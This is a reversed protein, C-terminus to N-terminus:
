VADPHVWGPQRHQCPRDDARPTPRRGAHFRTAGIVCRGDGRGYLVAWRTEPQMTFDEITTPQASVPPVWSAVFLVALTILILGRMSMKTLRQADAGRSQSMVDATPRTRAGRAPVIIPMRGLLDNVRSAGRWLAGACRRGARHACAHDGGIARAVCQVAGACWHRDRPQHGADPDAPDAADDSRHDGFAGGCEFSGVPSVVPCLFHSEVLSPSTWYRM